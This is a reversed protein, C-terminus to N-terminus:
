SGKRTGSEVGLGARRARERLRQATAVDGQTETLLALHMLAEVHDPELYVVRRYCEAAARRDGAADRVVGLVYYAEASPGHEKLNKEYYDAAEQLRGADVLRQARVLEASASAVPAAMPTLDAPGENQVSPKSPKQGQKAPRPPIYVTSEARKAATKRFAFSMARNMSTFGSHSALFAEAPGVFLFGGSALFGGLTRMVRDQTPRDFYILLNRCFVVDYPPKESFPSDTSVINVQHFNVSGSLSEGVTYGTETLRFYRDRFTLNESRFSNRGYVGRKAHALSRESIDIADVKMQRRSLGADLLAMVMSYPEEGTSCPVSLLRLVDTSHAPLWQETVLRILVAFAETDRFFWTEPVIVAETLEQLEGTSGRLKCWYDDMEKLGSHAMRQRVAREVTTSGVSAADLGMTQRLLHEFDALTM